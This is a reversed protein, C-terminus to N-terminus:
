FNISCPVDTVYIMCGLSEPQASAEDSQKVIAAQVVEM